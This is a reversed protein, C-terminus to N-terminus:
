LLNNKTLTLLIKFFEYSCKKFLFSYSNYLNKYNSILLNVKSKFFDCAVAQVEFEVNLQKISSKSIEIKCLNEDTKKNEYNNKVNDKSDMNEVKHLFEPPKLKPDLVPKLKCSMTHKEFCKKYVYKKDCYPCFLVSKTLIACKNSDIHKLFDVYQKYCITQLM